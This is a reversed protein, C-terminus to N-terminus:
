HVGKGHPTVLMARTREHWEPIESLLKALGGRVDMANSGKMAQRLRDAAAHRLNQSGMHGIHEPSTGALQCSCHTPRMEIDLMAALALLEVITDMAAFQTKMFLEMEGPNNTDAMTYNPGDKVGVHEADVNVADYFETLCKVSDTLHPHMDTLAQMMKELYQKRTIENGM